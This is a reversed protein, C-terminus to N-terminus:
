CISWFAGLIQSSRVVKASLASQDLGHGVDNLAIIAESSTVKIGSRGM